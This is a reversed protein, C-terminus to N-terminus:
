AAFEVYACTGCEDDHDETVTAHTGFFAQVKGPLERNVNDTSFTFKREGRITLEVPTGIANSLRAELSAIRDKTNM